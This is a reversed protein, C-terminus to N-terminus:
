RTTEGDNYEWWGVRNGNNDKIKGSPKGAKIAPLCSQLIAAIDESTECGVNGMTIHVMFHMGKM